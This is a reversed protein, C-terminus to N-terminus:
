QSAWQSEMITPPRAAILDQVAAVFTTAVFPKRLYADAGAEAARGAASLISFVLVPTDKIADDARVRRCLTLGDIKALLIETILMRPRISKARALAIEGDDAFEIIYGAKELFFVQLDRVNHDKEAILIIRPDPHQIHM